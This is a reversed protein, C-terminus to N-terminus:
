CGEIKAVRARAPGFTVGNTAHRGATCATASTVSAATVPATAALRLRSAPRGPVAAHRVFLHGSNPEAARGGADLGEWGSTLFLEGFSAGGFAVCTPRSTPTKVVELLDGAPSYRHLQGGEWLAVWLTGAGDIALGDPYGPAPEVLKLDARRTGLRGITADYDYRRIVPESSDIFYMTRGDPTWALGNPEVLGDLCLSVTGSRGLMRLEGLRAHGDIASTGFLLRGAPDCAADNFRTGYAIPVPIPERDAVGVADFFAISDDVLAVIGGDDRLAMAGVVTGLRYRRPPEPPSVAIVAGGYVDVCWLTGTRDDWVPHEGLEFRFPQAVRWGGIM